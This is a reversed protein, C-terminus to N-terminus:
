PRDALRRRELESRIEAILRLLRDDDGRALESLLRALEESPYDAFRKISEDTVTVERCTAAATVATM